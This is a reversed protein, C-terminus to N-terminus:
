SAAHCDKNGRGTKALLRIMFNSSVRHFRKSVIRQGTIICYKWCRLCERAINSLSEAHKNKTLVAVQKACFEEDSQSLVRGRANFELGIGGLRKEDVMM